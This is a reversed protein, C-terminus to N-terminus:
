RYDYDARLNNNNVEFLEVAYDRPDSRNVYIKAIINEQRKFRSMLRAHSRVLRRKRENNTYSCDARFTLYNQIKVGNLPNIKEVTGKYEIGDQKLRRIKSANVHSLLYFFLSLGFWVIVHGSFITYTFVRPVHVDTNMDILFAGLPLFMIVGAVILFIKASLRWPCKLPKM